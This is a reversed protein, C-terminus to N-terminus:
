KSEHQPAISRTVVSFAIQDRPGAWRALREGLGAWRAPVRM